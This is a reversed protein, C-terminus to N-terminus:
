RFCQSAHFSARKLGTVSSLTSVDLVSVLVRLKEKDVLTVGM